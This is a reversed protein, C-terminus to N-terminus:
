VDVIRTNYLINHLYIGKEKLHLMTNFNLGEYSHM